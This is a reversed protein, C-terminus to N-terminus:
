LGDQARHGRGGREAEGLGDAAADFVPLLVTPAAKNQEDQKMWGPTPSTSLDLLLTSSYDVKGSYGEYSIGGKEPLVIVNPIVESSILNVLDSNKERKDCIASKQPM